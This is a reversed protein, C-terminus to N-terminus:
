DEEEENEEETKTAPEKPGMMKSFDENEELCDKLMDFLIESRPNSRDFFKYLIDRAQTPMNQAFQTLAEIARDMCTIGQEVVVEEPLLILMAILMSITAELQYAPIHLDFIDLIHELIGNYDLDLDFKTLRCFINYITIQKIHIDIGKSIVFIIAEIVIEPSEINRDFLAYLCEIYRDLPLDDIEHQSIIYLLEIFPNIYEEDENIKEEVCSLVTNFLDKQAAPDTSANEVYALLAVSISPYQPPDSLSIAKIILPVYIFCNQEIFSALTSFLAFNNPIFDYMQLGDFAKFRGIFVLYVYELIERPIKEFKRSIVACLELTKNMLIPDECVFSLKSAQSFVEFIQDNTYNTAELCTISTAYCIYKPDGTKMFQSILEYPFVFAEILNGEEDRMRQSCTAAEKACFRRGADDIDKDNSVKTILAEFIPHVLESYALPAETIRLLDILYEMAFSIAKINNTSTIENIIPFCKSSFEIIFEPKDTSYMDIVGLTFAKAEVPVSGDDILYHMYQKIITHLEENDTSIIIEQFVEFYKEYLEANGPIGKVLSDLFFDVEVDSSICQNIVKLAQLAIEKEESLFSIFTKAFENFDSPLAVESKLLNKISQLIVLIDKEERNILTTALSFVKAGVLTEYPSIYKILTSLIYGVSEYYKEHKAKEFLARYVAQPADDVSFEIDNLTKTFELKPYTKHVGIFKYVEKVLLKTLYRIRAQGLFPLLYMLRKMKDLEIYIKETEPDTKEFSTIIQKIQTDHSFLEPYSKYILPVVNMLAFYNNENFNECTAVEVIHTWLINRIEVNENMDFTKVDLKPILQLLDTKQSIFCTHSFGDNLLSFFYNKNEEIEEKPIFNIITSIILPISAKNTTEPNTLFEVLRSDIIETQSVVSFIADCLFKILIDNSVNNCIFVIIDWVDDVNFDSSATINSSIYLALSQAYGTLINLDGSGFVKQTISQFNEYNETIVVPTGFAENLDKLILIGKASFEELYKDFDSSM